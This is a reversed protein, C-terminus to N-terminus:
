IAGLNLGNVPVLVFYFLIMCSFSYSVFLVNLIIETREAEWFHFANM